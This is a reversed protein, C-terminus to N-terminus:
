LVELDLLISDFDPKLREIISKRKEVAIEMQSAPIKLKATKGLLGVRFDTFGITLLEREAREMRRLAERTISMGAPIQAALCSYAPKDWTPLESKKSLIRVKTKTIGFEKLPSSVSIKNNSALEPCEETKDSANSGEILVTFGDSIAQNKIVSLMKKKCHFCRDSDNAVIKQTKFIDFELVELKVRYQKALRLANDLEFQPQFATKVYYPKISAGCQKGLYLLYTSNVGGTFCLAVKQHDRFFGKLHYLEDSLM